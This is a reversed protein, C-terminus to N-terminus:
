NLNLCNEHLKINFGLETLYQALLKSPQNTLGFKLVLCFLKRHDLYIKNYKIKKIWAHLLHYYM